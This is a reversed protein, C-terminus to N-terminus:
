KRAYPKTQPTIKQGYMGKTIASAVIIDGQPTQGAM